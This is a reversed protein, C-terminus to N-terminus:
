KLNLNKFTGVREQKHKNCVASPPEVESAVVLTVKSDVLAPKASTLRRRSADIEIGNSGTDTVNQLHVNRHWSTVGKLMATEHIM